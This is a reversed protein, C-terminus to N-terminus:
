TKTRASFRRSGRSCAITVESEHGDVGFRCGGAPPRAFAGHAQSASFKCGDRPRCSKGVSLVKTFHVAHTSHAISERGTAPVRQQRTAFGLRHFTPFRSRGQPLEVARNAPSSAAGTPRVRRRLAGAILLKHRDGVAGGLRLGNTASSRAISSSGKSFTGALGMKEWSRCPGRPRQQARTEQGSTPRPDGSGAGQASRLDGESRGTLQLNIGCL